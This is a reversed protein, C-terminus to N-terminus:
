SGITNAGEVEQAHVEDVPHRNDLASLRLVTNEEKLAEITRLLEMKEDELVRVNTKLQENQERLERVDEVRQEKLEERIHPKKKRDKAMLSSAIETVVELDYFNNGFNMEYVEFAHQTYYPSFGMARLRQAIEVKSIRKSKEEDLEITDGPGDMVATSSKTDFAAIESTDDLHAWCLYKKDLEEYVVQVQGSIDDVIRIEGCKWGPHRCKPNIDIYDGVKPNSFRRAKRRFISGAIAFRHLEKTFDSWADWKRPWKVYHIKLNMGQKEMITALVFRGVTDRHDIRDFVKLQQAQELSMHPVFPHVAEGSPHDITSQPAPIGTISFSTLRRALEVKEVNAVCIKCRKAGHAKKWQSKSFAAKYKRAQCSVCVAWM